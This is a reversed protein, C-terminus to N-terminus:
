EGRRKLVSILKFPKEPAPPKCETAMAEFDEFTMLRECVKDATDILNLRIRPGYKGRRSVRIISWRGSDGALRVVLGVRIESQEVPM